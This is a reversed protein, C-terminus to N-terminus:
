EYSLVERVTLRVANSAPMASSVVSLVIVLGLWLFVGGISFQYTLGQSLFSLGVMECFVWTPPIALVIGFLCSIVGVVIGEIIVISFVSRNSGGFARIVGIERDREIVNLSMSGMLGLGGVFALLLVLVLLLVILAAIKVFKNICPSIFGAFLGYRM